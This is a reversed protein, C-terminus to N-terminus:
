SSPCETNNMGTSSTLHPRCVLWQKTQENEVVHNALQSSNLSVISVLLVPLDSLASTVNVYSLIFCYHFDVGGVIMSWAYQTERM